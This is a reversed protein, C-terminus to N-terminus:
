RAVCVSLWLLARVISGWQISALASVSQHVAPAHLQKPQTEAQHATEKRVYLSINRFRFHQANIKESTLVPHKPTKM